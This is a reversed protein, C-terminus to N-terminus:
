CESLLASLDPWALSWNPYVENRGNVCLRLPAFGCLRKLNSQQRSFKANVRRTASDTEEVRQLVRFDNM